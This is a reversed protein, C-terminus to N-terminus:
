SNKDQQYQEFIGLLLTVRSKVTPGTEGTDGQGSTSPTTRYLGLVKCRQDICRQIGELWRPDGVKEEERIIKEATVYEIRHNINTELEGDTNVQMNGEEDVVRPVKKKTKIVRKEKSEIYGKLYERELADIKELEAQERENFNVLAAQRWRDRIAALDNSVTPQSIDLEQAIQVQTYGRLYMEAIKAQHNIKLLGGREPETKRGM